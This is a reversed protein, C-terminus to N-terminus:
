VDRAAIRAARGDGRAAAVEGGREYAGARAADPPQVGGCDESCPGRKGARRGGDAAHRASADARAPLGGTFPHERGFHWLLTRNKRYHTHHAEDVQFTSRGFTVPPRHSEEQSNGAADLGSCPSVVILRAGGRGGTLNRGQLIGGRWKKEKTKETNETSTRQARQTLAEEKGM